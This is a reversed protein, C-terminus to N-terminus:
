WNVVMNTATTSTAFLKIIQVPLWSSAGLGIYTVDQGSATLVRVNGATGIYLICGLNAEPDTYITIANTGAMTGITSVVLETESVISTVFTAESVTTNVLSDGISVTDLFNNKNFISYTNGSVILTATAGTSTPQLELILETESIIGKVISVVNTTTNKFRDGISVNNTIFTAAAEYLLIGGNVTAGSDGSAGGNAATGSELLLSSCTINSGAVGSIVTSFNPSTPVPINIDDSPIARAATILQLKQYAM